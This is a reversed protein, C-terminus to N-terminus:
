QVNIKRIYSDPYLAAVKMEKMFIMAENKNKFGAIFVRYWLGTKKSGVTDMRVDWGKKKLKSVLEEAFEEFRMSGLLIVHQRGQVPKVINRANSTTKKSAAIVKPEASKQEKTQVAEKMDPPSAPKDESSVTEPSKLRATQPSSASAKAPTEPPVPNENTVSVQEDKKEPSQTPATEVAKGSEAQTAPAEAVAPASEEPKAPVQAPEAPEAPAEKVAKSKATARARALSRAKEFDTEAAAKPTNSPVKLRARYTSKKPIPGPHWEGMDYYLQGKTIRNIKVRYKKDGSQISRYEYLTPWVFIGYSILAVLILGLLITMRSFTKKPPPEHPPMEGPEGAPPEGPPDETSLAEMPEQQPQEMSVNENLADAALIEESLVVPPMEESTESRFSESQLEEKFIDELVPEKPPMEPPTDEALLEEFAMERTEEVSLEQTKELSISEGPEGLEIDPSDEIIFEEGAKEGFIDELVVEDSPQVEEPSDALPDDLTIERPNDLSVTEQTEEFPVGEPKEFAIAELPDEFKIEKGLELEDPPKDEFIDTFAEDQAPKEEHHVDFSIEEPEEITFEPLPEEVSKEAADEQFATEESADMELDIEGPPEELSFEERVDELVVEKESLEPSDEEQSFEKELEEPTGVLTKEKTKKELSELEAIIEEISKEADTM